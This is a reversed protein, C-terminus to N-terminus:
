GATEVVYDGAKGAPDWGPSYRRRLDISAQVGAVLDREDGVLGGPALIGAAGLQAVQEAWGRRILAQTVAAVGGSVLQSRSDALAQLYREAGPSSAEARAAIVAATLLDPLVARHGGLMQAGSAAAVADFPTHLTTGDIRGEQLADLRQKTGGVAVLDADTYGVERDDLIARLVFAFASHADDVGWRRNGDGAGRRAYVVLEGIGEGALVVPDRNRGRLLHDPSTHMVTLEGSDWLQLQQDSSRVEVVDVQVDHAAFIGQDAANWVHVSAASPFIGTTVQLARSM